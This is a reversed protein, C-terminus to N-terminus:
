FAKSKISSIQLTIEALYEYLFKSSIIPWFTLSIQNYNATRPCPRSFFWILTHQQCRWLFSLCNTINVVAVWFGWSDSVIVSLTQFAPNISISTNFIFERSSRVQVLIGFPYSTGSTNEKGSPDAWFLLCERLCLLIYLGAHPRNLLHQSQQSLHLADTILLVIITSPFSLSGALFHVMFIAGSQSKKFFGYNVLMKVLPFFLFVEKRHPPFGKISSYSYVLICGYSHIRVSM